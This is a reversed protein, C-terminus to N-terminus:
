DQKWLCLLRYLIDQAHLELLGSSIHSQTRVLSRSVVAVIDDMLHFVDAQEVLYFVAIRLHHRCPASQTHVVISSGFRHPTSSM